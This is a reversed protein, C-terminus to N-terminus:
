KHYTLFLYIITSFVSISIDTTAAFTLALNLQQESKTGLIEHYFRDDPEL